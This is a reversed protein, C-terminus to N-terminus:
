VCATVYPVGPICTICYCYGVNWECGGWRGVVIPGDEHDLDCLRTSNACGQICGGAPLIETSQRLHTLLKM